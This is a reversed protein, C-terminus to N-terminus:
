SIRQTDAASAFIAEGWRARSSVRRAALLRGADAGAPGRRRHAPDHAARAHRVHKGVYNAYRVKGPDIFLGEEKDMIM